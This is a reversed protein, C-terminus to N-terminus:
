SIEVALLLYPKDGSKRKPLFTHLCIYRRCLFRTGVLFVHAMMRRWSCNKTRRWARKPRRVFEAACSKPLFKCAPASKPHLKRAGQENKCSLSCKFASQPPRRGCEHLLFVYATLDHVSCWIKHSKSFYQHTPVRRFATHRCMPAGHAWFNHGLLVHASVDPPAFNCM